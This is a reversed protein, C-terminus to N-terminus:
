VDEKTYERRREGRKMRVYEKGEGKKEHQQKPEDVNKKRM